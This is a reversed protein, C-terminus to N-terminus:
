VKKVPSSRLLSKQLHLKGAVRKVGPQVLVAWIEVQLKPSSDVGAVVQM